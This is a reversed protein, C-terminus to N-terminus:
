SSRLGAGSLFGLIANRSGHPLVTDSVIKSALWLAKRLSIPRSWTEKHVHVDAWVFPRPVLEAYSAFGLSRGWGALEEPKEGDENAVGISTLAPVALM